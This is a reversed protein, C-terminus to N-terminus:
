QDKYEHESAPHKISLIIVEAPLEDVTYYVLYSCKRTLLQRVGRTTQPRGAHPYLTLIRLSELIATRVRV